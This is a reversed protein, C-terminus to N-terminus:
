CDDHRRLEQMLRRHSDEKDRDHPHRPHVTHEVVVDVILFGSLVLILITGM